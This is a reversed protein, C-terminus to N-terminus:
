GSSAVLAARVGETAAGANVEVDPIEVDAYGNLSFRVSYTGTVLGSLRYTGDTETATTTVEEGEKIATVTVNALANGTADTVTGGISGADLLNILRMALSPTFGFERISSLDDIHGAPVPKFARSLDVDLLLMTEEDASVEFDFHLKIGTQPGSPVKLVFERAADGEGVVVRGQTVILRMQNYTGAEITAEALLDMRGNRLDALHIEKEGEWVTIWQSDDDEGAANGDGETGAAQEGAEDDEDASVRHVAVRTVTITAESILDFPFPKDTILVKLTGTGGGVSRANCGAFGACVFLVLFCVVISVRLFPLGPRM